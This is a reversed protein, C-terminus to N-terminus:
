DLLLALTTELEGPQFGLAAAGLSQGLNLGLPLAALALTTELEGPQFGLAAAGLSQGLNLGLPLAALALSM